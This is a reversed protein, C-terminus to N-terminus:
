RGPRHFCRRLARQSTTSLSDPWVWLRQSGIRLGVLWPGLYDCGVGFSPGSEGTSLLWGGEFQSGTDTIQLVGCPQAGYARYVLWLGGTLVIGGVWLGVVWGTTAALGLTLVGQLGGSLKSRAILLTIPPKLM